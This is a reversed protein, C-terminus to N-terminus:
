PRLKMIEPAALVAATGSSIRLTDFFYHNVDKGNMMRNLLNWTRDDCDALMKLAFLVVANPVIENDYLIFESDRQLVTHLFKNYNFSSIGLISLWTDFHSTKNTSRTWPMKSAHTSRFLPPSSSLPSSSFTLEDNQGINTQSDGPLGPPLGGREHRAVHNAIKLVRFSCFDIDDFHARMVLDFFWTGPRLSLKLLLALRGPVNCVEVLERETLVIAIALTKIGCQNMLIDVDQSSAGCLRLLKEFSILPNLLNHAIRKCKRRERAKTYLAYEAYAESERNYQQRAFSTYAWTHRSKLWVPGTNLADVIDYERPEESPSPLSSSSSSSSSPSSYSSLPNM